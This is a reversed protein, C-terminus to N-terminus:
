PLQEGRTNTPVSGGITQLIDDRDNRAGTYKIIGDMNADAPHYGSVTNTPVAGGIAQLVIDRDNSDGTYRVQADVHANGKWLARVTGLTHMAETGHLATAPDTADFGTTTYPDFEIPAASMAGLHNRHRIVLHHGGILMPWKLLSTGDTEVVDGDRQVLASRTSIMRTPDSADRAELLIWDVVADPGMANTANPGLTEGGGFGAHVFGLATFPEEQPLLGAVRLSDHMLINGAEFPGELFTRVNVGVPACVPILSTGDLQWAPDNTICLHALISPVMDTQGPTRSLDTTILEASDDVWTPSTPIGGAIYNAGPAAPVANTLAGGSGEDMTWHGILSAIFPHDPGLPSGAWESLISFPLAAGWIRVDAIEGSLGVGYTTTGDQGFCLDMGTNIDGIAAMSAAGLHIGDQMIFVSGDRDCSVAIHHWKGDNIPFGTLDVRDTGDGINFKWNYGGITTSLVYGANNGSNWNKDGVFVPDGSWGLPMRVRCEVTFDGITGFRYPSPDIVEVHGTPSFLVTAPM